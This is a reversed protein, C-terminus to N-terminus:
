VALHSLPFAAPLLNPTDTSTVSIISFEKEREGGVGKLILPM